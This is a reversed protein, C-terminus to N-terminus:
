PPHNNPCNANPCYPVPLIDIFGVLRDDSLSHVPRPTPRLVLREGCRKCFYGDKGMMAERILWEDIVEMRRSVWKRGGIEEM